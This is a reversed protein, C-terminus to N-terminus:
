TIDEPRIIEKGVSIGETTAVEVAVSDKTIYEAANKVETLVDWQQAEDLNPTWTSLRPPYTAEKIYITKNTKPRLIYM